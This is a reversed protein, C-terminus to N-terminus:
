FNLSQSKTVLKLIKVVLLKLNKKKKKTSILMMAVIEPVTIM